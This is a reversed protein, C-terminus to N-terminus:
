REFYRKRADSMNKKAEDSIKRGTLAVSLKMRTEASKNKQAMSMALKTAESKKIGLRAKSIKARTEPTQVYGKHADSSNKLWEPTRPRGKNAESIKRKSEKSHRKGRSADGIKRKQEESLTKGKHSLSSKIRTSGSVTQKCDGGTTLNYGGDSVFASLEKIWFVERENLSDVNSRELLVFIFACRGHKNHSFQLIDNHHKNDALHKFHTARRETVDRTQGVYWRHSVVNLIGYIGCISM